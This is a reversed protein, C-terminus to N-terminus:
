RDDFVLPLRAWDPGHVTQADPASFSQDPSDLEAEEVLRRDKPVTARRQREDQLKRLERITQTLQKQLTVEYRALKGTLNQNLMVRVMRGIRYADELAPPRFSLAETSQQAEANADDPRPGDDHHYAEHSAVYTMLGAEFHPVRQLRWAIEAARQVQYAEIAGQPALDEILGEFFAAFVAPDEGPLLPTKASLGHKLANQSSRAKGHATQPGTSKQANLRNAELQSQSPRIIPM